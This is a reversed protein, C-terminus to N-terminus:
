ANREVASAVCAGDLDVNFLAAEVSASDFRQAPVAGSAKFAFCLSSELRYNPRPEEVILRPLPSQCRCRQDRDNTGKAQQVM